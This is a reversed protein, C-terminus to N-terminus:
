DNGIVSLGVDAVDTVAHMDVNIQHPMGIALEVADDFACAKTDERLIPAHGGPQGIDLAGEVPNMQRCPEGYADVHLIGIRHQEADAGGGDGDDPLASDHSRLARELLRLTGCASKTAAATAPNAARARGGRRM